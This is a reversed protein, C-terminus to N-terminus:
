DSKKDLAEFIFRPRAGYKKILQEIEEDSGAGPHNRIIKRIEEKSYAIEVVEFRLKLLFVLIKSLFYFDTLLDYKVGRFKLIWATQTVVNVKNLEQHRKLYENLVKFYFPTTSPGHEETWLGLGVKEPDIYESDLFPDAFLILDYKSAKKYVEKRSKAGMDKKLTEWFIRYVDHPKSDMDIFLYAEYVDLDLRSLASYINASKGTGPTGLVLIFRGKSNKLGKLANCLEIFSATKVFSKTDKASLVKHNSM